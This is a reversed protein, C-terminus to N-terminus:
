KSSREETTCHSSECTEVLRETLIAENDRRRNRVLGEGFRFYHTSWHWVSLSTHRDDHAPCLARWGQSTKKVGNLRSLLRGLFSESSVSSM